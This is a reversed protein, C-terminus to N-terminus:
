YGVPVTAHSHRWGTGTAQSQGWSEDAPEPDLCYHDQYHELEVDSPELADIAQQLETRTATEEPVSDSAAQPQDEDKVAAEASAGEISSPDPAVEEIKVLIRKKRKVSKRKSAKVWRFEYGAPPSEELETSPPPTADESKIQPTTAWESADVVTEEIPEDPPTSDDKPVDEPVKEDEPVAVAYTDEDGEEFVPSKAGCLGFMAISKQHSRRVAGQTLNLLTKAVEPYKDVINGMTHSGYAQRYIWSRVFQELFFDRIDSDIQLLDCANVLTTWSPDHPENIGDGGYYSPAFSAFQTSLFEEFQHLQHQQAFIFASLYEKERSDGLPAM